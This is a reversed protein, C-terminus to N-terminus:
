ESESAHRLQKANNATAVKVAHRVRRGLDKDILTLMKLSRRQVPQTVTALQAALAEALRQRQGDDSLVHNYFYAPPALDVANYEFVVLHRWPKSEDVVPEPGSHSNPYYNPADRMNENVPPVGDRVYTKAYMPLNVDIKNHNIGLRYNQTDRYFLRRGKFLTDPPGPIGPVLNAPNFASLEAIKFYNDPNKNLTLRGIQVTHYTGNKWLRTVDFPNFDLHKIGESTMVDMELRWSPYNKSAIANYLDRTYYDLDQSANTVGVETLNRVGQETRFNFRVYYREGKRNNLEYTQIPFGDINRYSKPIGFDSQTWLFAHLGSPRTTLFDWTVTRDFVNTAPNRKFSHVQTQFYLPDTYLYVPTQLCLFDLNGEKTYMKIAMGKLERVVDPGGLNQDATSFRAVLPTKKGIGNFVDAKTYKSIDHTVEFYGFAATGKAHVIREPVREHTLHMMSDLLYENGLLDSNLTVIERLEVPRGATTTLVGIPKPHKMKFECMKRQVPQLTGNRYECCFGEDLVFVCLVLCTLIRKM